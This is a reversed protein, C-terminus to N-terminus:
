VHIYNKCTCICFRWHTFQANSLSVKSYAIKLLM